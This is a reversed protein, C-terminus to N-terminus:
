GLRSYSCFFFFFFFFFFYYHSGTNCYCCWFPIIILLLLLSCLTRTRYRFHLPNINEVLFHIHIKALHTLLSFIYITPRDYHSYRSGAFYIRPFRARLIEKLSSFCTLLNQKAGQAVWTTSKARATTSQRNSHHITFSSSTQYPARQLSFM